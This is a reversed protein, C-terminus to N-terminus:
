VNTSIGGTTHLEHYKNFIPALVVDSFLTRCYNAVLTHAINSTVLAQSAYAGGLGVSDKGISLNGSKSVKTLKNAYYTVAAWYFDAIIMSLVHMIADDAYGVTNLLNCYTHYKNTTDLDGVFNNKVALEATLQSPISITVIAPLSIELSSPTNNNLVISERKPIVGTDHINHHKTNAIILEADISMSAKAEASVVVAMSSAPRMPRKHEAYLTISDGVGGQLNITGHSSQSNDSPVSAITLKVPDVSTSTM